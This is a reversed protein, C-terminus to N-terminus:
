MRARGQNQHSKVIYISLSRIIHNACTYVYRHIRDNYSHSTPYRATAGARPDYWLNLYASLVSQARLRTRTLICTYARIDTIFGYLLLSTVSIRSEYWYASQLLVMSTHTICTHINVNWPRCRGVQIPQCTNRPTCPGLQIQQLADVRTDIYTEGLRRVCLSTWCWVCVHICM